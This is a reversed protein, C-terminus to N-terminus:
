LDIILSHCWEGAFGLMGNSNSPRLRGYSVTWNGTFLPRTIRQSVIYVDM